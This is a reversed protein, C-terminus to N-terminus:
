NFAEGIVKSFLPLFNNKEIKLYTYLGMNGKMFKAIFCNFYRGADNYKQIKKAQCFLSYYKPWVHVLEQM